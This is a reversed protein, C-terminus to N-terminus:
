RVDTRVLECRRLRQPSAHTIPRSAGYGVAKMRDLPVGRGVLYRQIADARDQTLELNHAYSGLNDSHCQIEVTVQPHVVLLTAVADLLPLSESRIIHGDIEFRIHDALKIERPTLTAKGPVEVPAEPGAAGADGASADRAALPPPQVGADPAATPEVVWATPPSAAAACGTL